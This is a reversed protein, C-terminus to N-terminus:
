RERLRDAVMRYIRATKEIYVEMLHEANNNLQMAYERDQM